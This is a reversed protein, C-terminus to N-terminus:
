VEKKCTIVETIETYRYSTVLYTLVDTLSMTELRRTCVKVM